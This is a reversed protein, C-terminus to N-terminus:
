LPMAKNKSCQAKVQSIKHWTPKFLNVWIFDYISICNIHRRQPCFPISKALAPPHKLTGNRSAPGPAQISQNKPFIWHPAKLFRLFYPYRKRNKSCGYLELITCKNSYESLNVQLFYESILDTCSNIQKALRSIVSYEEIAISATIIPMGTM